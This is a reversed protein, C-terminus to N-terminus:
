VHSRSRKTAGTGRSSVQVRAIIVDSRAQIGQALFRNQQPAELQNARDLGPQLFIKSRASGLDGEHNAADRELDFPRKAITVSTLAPHSPAAGTQHRVAPSCVTFDRPGSIGVSIDLQRSSGGTITALFGPEGPLARFLGNFCDRPIGSRKPPGATVLARVSKGKAHSAAPAHSARCERRGKIKRPTSNGPCFGRQRVAPVRRHSRSPVAAGTTRRLCPGMVVPDHQLPLRRGNHWDARGRRTPGRRRPSSVQLAEDLPCISTPSRMAFGSGM